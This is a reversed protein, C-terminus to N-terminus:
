DTLFIGAGGQPQVTGRVDGAVVLGGHDIILFAVEQKDRNVIAVSLDSGEVGDVGRIRGANGNGAVEAGTHPRDHTQVLVLGGRIQGQLDVGSLKLEELGLGGLEVDLDLHTLGVVVRNFHGIGGNAGEFVANDSRQLLALGGNGDGSHVDVIGALM